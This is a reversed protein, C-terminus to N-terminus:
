VRPSIFTEFDRVSLPKSIYFGQAINCNKEKLFALQEETEVGEAIINLNLNQALAIIANVIATDDLDKNIDQTFSRDIKLTNIPLRKLYSLSSYGTGFDDISLKFGMDSIQHLLEITQPENDLLLSETIELEILNPDLHLEEVIRTLTTDVLSHTFQKTSLNIALHLPIDRQKNWSILQKCATMLIWDGLPNILGTDELIPIFSMPGIIMEEPPLWRLLAEAGIINGSNIDILPQYHLTFEEREVAHRLKTEISLREYVKTSMETSYFAYNSRGLEKARYMAIDAYKLLTEADTADNPYFTIGISTGLYLEHDNITVPKSFAEFLKKVIPTVDTADEINEIIVAFEDGALRAITDTSQLNEKLLNAVVRLAADGTDHGLTDNINKFHDLDFFLIAVNKELKNAEKIAHELRDMFLARNPLKTLIDHHSLYHLREQTKLRDTIDRGTSIFHTIEGQANLLPTILKEEYYMSGDKKRNIMVDNFVQGSKIKRWLAKYFSPEHEGSHLIRPTKGIAEGASFGTIKEFAPNVYEIIGFTNSIMVAEATQELASSLKHMQAQAQKRETINTMSGRILTKDRGPLRILRVECLIQEGSPREITWEFVPADGEVAKGINAYGIEESSSGDPQISPSISICNQSLLEERPRGFLSIANDNVDIFRGLEADLVFIAEPAHEVLTRFREESETLHNLTIHSTLSNTIRHGIEEFLRYEEDSIFHVDECYHLGLLWPENTQHNLVMAMLTKINFAKVDHDNAFERDESINFSIPANTELAHKFLQKSAASMQFTAGGEAGPWQPRTREMQLYWTAAAPDCPSLLWARDCCFASLIEDLVDKLMADISSSRLTIINIRELVNLFDLHTQVTTNAQKLETIDTLTSVVQKNSKTTDSSLPTTNVMVWNYHKNKPDYIGMQVNNVPSDNDLSLIAPHEHPPIATGDEYIPQGWYGPISLKALDQTTIGLLNLAADNIDTIHGDIDQTIVGQSMTNILSRFKTESHNISDVICLCNIVEHLKYSLEKFIIKELDSFSRNTTCFHLMFLWDINESVCIKNSIQSKIDFATCLRSAAFQKDTQTDLVVIHSQKTQNTLVPELTSLEIVNTSNKAAGTLSARAQEIKVEYANSEADHPALLWARDASFIETVQELANTLKGELTDAQAFANHIKDLASTLQELQSENKMEKSSM